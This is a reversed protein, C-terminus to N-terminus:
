NKLGIALRSVDYGVGLWVYGDSLCYPIRNITWGVHLRVLWMEIALSQPHPKRTQGNAIQSIYLVM